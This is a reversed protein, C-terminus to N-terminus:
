QPSLFSFNIKSLNFCLVAIVFKMAIWSARCGVGLGRARTVFEGASPLRCDFSLSGISLIM